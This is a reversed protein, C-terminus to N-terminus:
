PIVLSLNNLESRTMNKPVCRVVVFKL